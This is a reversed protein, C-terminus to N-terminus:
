TLISLIQARWASRHPFSNASFTYLRISDCGNDFASSYFGSNYFAASRPFDFLQLINSGILFWKIAFTTFINEIDWHFNLFGRVTLLETLLSCTSTKFFCSPPDVWVRLFSNWHLYQQCHSDDNDHVCM